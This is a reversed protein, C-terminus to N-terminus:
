PDSEADRMLEMSNQIVDGITDSLRSYICHYIIILNSTEYKLVYDVM